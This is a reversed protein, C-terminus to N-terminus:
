EDILDEDADGGTESRLRRRVRLKGAMGLFTTTLAGLLFTLLLLFILRIKVPPGFIFSLAV